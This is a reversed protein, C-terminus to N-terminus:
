FVFPIVAKVGKPFDEFKSLYWKRTGYSRGLLLVASGVTFSFAHLTQAICSVGVFGLIEFLYHPCIVLNFLGGKPIKYEKDGESRLRSLLCHHYFNGSLGALFIAIGVYTLDVLPERLGRTLHQAYIMLATQTFYSLSIMTSVDVFMSGSYKHVFLVLMFRLGESPFLFFSALGFLFAPSYAMFMGTRGSVKFTSKRPGVNWFKSYQLQKGRMEAIGNSGLFALTIASMIMVVSTPPYTLGHLMSSAM